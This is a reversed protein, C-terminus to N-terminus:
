RDTKIGYKIEDDTLAIPNWPKSQPTDVHVRKPRKPDMLFGGLMYPKDDDSKDPPNQTPTKPASTALTTKSGNSSGLAPEGKPKLKGKKKKRILSNVYSLFQDYKADFAKKRHLTKWIALVSYGQALAEEISKKHALFQTKSKGLFKEKQLEEILNM